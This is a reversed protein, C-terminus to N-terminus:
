GFVAGLPRHTLFIDSTLFDTTRWKTIVAFALCEDDPLDCSAHRIRLSM